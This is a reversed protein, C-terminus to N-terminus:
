SHIFYTFGLNNIMNLYHENSLKAIGIDDSENPVRYNMDLKSKIAIEWNNEQEMKAFWHHHISVDTILQNEIRFSAFRGEKIAAVLNIKDVTLDNVATFTTIKLRRKEGSPLVIEGEMFNGDIVFPYDSDIFGTAKTYGNAAMHQKIAYYPDAHPTAVSFPPTSTKLMFFEKNIQKNLSLLFNVYYFM